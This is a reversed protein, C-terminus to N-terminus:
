SSKLAIGGEVNTAARVLCAMSTYARRGSIEMSESQIPVIVRIMSARIIAVKTAAAHGDM